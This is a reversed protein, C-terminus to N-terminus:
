GPVIIPPQEKVACVWFLLVALPAGAASAHLLFEAYGSPGRAAIWVAAVTVIWGALVGLSLRNRSTLSAWALGFDAALMIALTQSVQADTATLGIGTAAERVLDAWAGGDAIAVLKLVGEAAISTVLAIRLLAIAVKARGISFALPPPWFDVLLLVLPMAVRIVGALLDLVHGDNVVPAAAEAGFWLIVALLVPWSPRLLTFLAAIALGYGVFPTWPGSSAETADQVAMLLRAAGSERGASLHLLAQGACQMCVAV